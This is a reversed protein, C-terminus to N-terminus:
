ITLSLYYEGNGELRIESIALTYYGGEDRMKKVKEEVKSLPENAYIVIKNEEIVKGAGNKVVVNFTHHPRENHNTLMNHLQDIIGKNAIGDKVVKTM